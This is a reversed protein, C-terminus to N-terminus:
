NTGAILSVAVFRGGSLLSISKPLSVGILLKAMETGLILYALKFVKTNQRFIFCM